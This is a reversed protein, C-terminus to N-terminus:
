ADGSPRELSITTGGYPNGEIEGSELARQDVVLYDTGDM